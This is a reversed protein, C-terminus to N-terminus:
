ETKPNKAELLSIIQKLHKVEQRLLDVEKEKSELQLHLKEIENAADKDAFHNVTGIVLGIQGHQNNGNITITEPLFEQVPVQLIKSFNVM